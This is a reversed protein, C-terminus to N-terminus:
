YAVPRTPAPSRAKHPPAVPRTPRPMNDLLAEWELRSKWKSYDLQDPLPLVVHSSPQNDKPHCFLIWYLTTRFYINNLLSEHFFLNTWSVPLFLTYYSIELTVHLRYWSGMLKNTSYVFLLRSVMRKKKKKIAKKLQWNINQIYSEIATNYGILLLRSIFSIFNQFSILIVPVIFQVTISNALSENRGLTVLVTIM